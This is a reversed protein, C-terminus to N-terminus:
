STVEAYAMISWPGPEMRTNLYRCIYYIAQGGLEVHKLTVPSKSAIQALPYHEVSLESPPTGIHMRIDCSAVGKPKGNNREDSPNPGWHIIHWGRTSFDIVLMPANEPRQPPTKTLDYITLGLAARIIDDTAPNFQIRRVLKRVHKETLKRTEAKIAAAGKYAQRAQLLAIFDADWQTALNQLETIEAPSLGLTAAYTVINSTFTNFWESYQSDERPIYDEMATRRIFSVTVNYLYVDVIHFDVIIIHIDVIVIYFDVTIIYIDVIVIYIEVIAIYIDVTVIYTEVIAIYTEVNVIYIEM